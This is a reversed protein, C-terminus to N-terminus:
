AAMARREFEEPSMYELASHRRERNYWTEIWAFIAQKAEERTKFKRRYVLETKLSHFFSEVHANDWCNGKRSMSAIIGALRLRSAFADSAYQSGRDSHAILEGDEVDQRGLAMELARLILDTEMNDDCSFGVVKRTFIDLFIALFLWGEDTAVYTIDGAWVQNPAMVADANETEFLREAVPLDHNSDTTTVKFKKVTEAAIENENMLRAVRKENVVFGEARLDETVRPSGYTADSKEHVARIHELLVANDKDRSSEGRSRAAYYGSRSVELTKCAWTVAVGDTNLERVM